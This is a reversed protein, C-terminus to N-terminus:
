KGYNELLLLDYVGLIKVVNGRYDLVGYAAKTMFFKESNVNISRCINNKCYDEHETIDYFVTFHPICYNKVWFIGYRDLYRKQELSLTSTDIEKTQDPNGSHFDIVSSNLIKNELVRFDNDDKICWFINGSSVRLFNELEVEISSIDSFIAKLEFDLNELKCVPISMQYLSLHPINKRYKLKSDVNGLYDFVVRGVNDIIKSVENPPLLFVGIEIKNRQSMIM